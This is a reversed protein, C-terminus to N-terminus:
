AARRLAPARVRGAAADLSGVTFQELATNLTGAERTLSTAAATCEEAMAANQQTSSDLEGVVANIQSLNDAQIAASEALTQIAGALMTIDRTIAAFAEGSRGVLDVGRNVQVSSASILAKV